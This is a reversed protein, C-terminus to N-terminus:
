ADLTALLFEAAAANDLFVRFVGGVGAQELVANGQTVRGGDGIVVAVARLGYQPLEGLLKEALQAFAGVDPDGAAHLDVVVGFPVGVGRALRELRELAVDTEGLGGADAELRLIPAEYSFRVAM